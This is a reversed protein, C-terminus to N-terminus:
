RGYFVRRQLASCYVMVAILHLAALVFPLVWSLRQLDDNPYDIGDCNAYTPSSLDRLFLLDRISISTDGSDDVLCSWFMGHTILWIWSFFLLVASTVDGLAIWALRAQPWGNDPPGDRDDPANLPRRTLFPRRCNLTSLTFLEAADTVLAVTTGVYAIPNTAHDYWFVVSLFTLISLTALEVVLTVVRLALEASEYARAVRVRRTM